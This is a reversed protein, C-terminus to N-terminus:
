FRLRVQAQIFRNRTATQATVRGFNTSFPNLDPSEFQTRNQVNLADMRLQLTWTERIKFNRILNANWQSLGDARLGDIRSPFVRRHFAAPGRAATREFNETGFWRDLTQGETGIGAPDGYYFLNGWNLLPGPQFEFTGALQFGGLIHNAIGSQAFRRGKGFPVEYIGTAAIRHPRADNSPRATPAADFENFYFDSETARQYTYSFNFDYGQAFRKQLQLELAHTTATGEPAMRNALGNIHAYPRLLQQKRITPSTFFAQTSLDQYVLPATTRLGAFNGIAFPNTVNANLNSAVADNRVTGSAWYPEPLASLTRTLPVRDSYSGAYAADILWNKGLQHQFGARWRQQRAHRAEFPDFTFGRGVRAMAGLGNGTPVDYRTGDARVPFPNTMPSIGAAPNGVLWNVGFDNTLVTSTTRSFGSQDPGQNLVNLTDFFVGYGGRVVTKKGLQYAGAVRPLWMLENRWLRRSAGDAGAYQSGGKVEITRMEPLPSRAYAAEAASAIPLAAGADFSALMRNYRENPGLEYEMRLGVNLTFKSTVRWTDQGYWAYYPNLMAFTDNYAIQMASPLGMMFAAWSHALTGAPTLTDDNRRTWQNNFTFGGSTLGGGGGTRFQGRADFGARMTHNGAIKSLDAKGTLSRFSTVTPYGRSFTEYGGVTMQPLITQAGAREDLYAPLGVDSPKYDNARNAATGEIYNNLSVSVDLLTSPNVAYVWDATIGLNKRSQAASHLGRVTEYTWDLADNIWDNFSWRAFFRHRDSLNYDIRNTYAVYDRVLPTTVALFNNLPERRPDNDNNPTPLVDRYFKYAPNIIRSAPLINGPLPSRIFNRPRAPDPRVTLPDYIQYLGANVGLHRSFDGQRDALTPITKNLRTPLDSVKDINGQYSYFFFLKNRGDFVKPIWVPGGLTGVWNNSRGPEQKDTNRIQNALATNGAAEAEAIRRFYLQKTFFPTAHWRQQWHQWTASGHFQNTGAKTMMTVNVGTTHGISADFGSTEVKMESVTDVVPLYAGRRGAGNNPAGDISYENGGVRGNVGFDSAGANSHPGLYDNVGSTQVGPTHKVLVMTNNAIVPLDMVARNDMVRGSSVTSTDLLPAEETVQVTDTVMGIELRVDVDIRTSIPLVVGNRVFRKFGTAEATVQYNGPLLLNAEYYGADNTVRRTVTNTETSKVTVAVGPVPAGTPDAIRGAIMGRTEQARVATGMLALVLLWQKM